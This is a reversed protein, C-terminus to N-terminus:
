VQPVFVSFLCMSEKQQIRMCAHHTTGGLGWLGDSSFFLVTIFWIFSLLCKRFGIVICIIAKNLTNILLASIRASENSAEYAWGDRPTPSEMMVLSTNRLLLCPLTAAESPIKVLCNDLQSLLSPSISWPSTTCTPRPHSASM